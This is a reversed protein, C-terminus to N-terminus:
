QREKLGKRGLSKARKSCVDRSYLVHNNGGHVLSLVLASFTPAVHSTETLNHRVDGGRSTETLDHRVDGGRSASASPTVSM